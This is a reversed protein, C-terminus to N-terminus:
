SIFPICMTRSMVMASNTTAEVAIARIVLLLLLEAPLEM